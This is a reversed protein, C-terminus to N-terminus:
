WVSIGVYESYVEIAVLKLQSAVSKQLGKLTAVLEKSGFGGVLEEIRAYLFNRAQQILRHSRLRPKISHSPPDEQVYIRFFPEDLEGLTLAYIGADDDVMILDRQIDRALDSGAQGGRARAIDRIVGLLITATALRQQGDLLNICESEPLIVIPGLFYTDPGDKGNFQRYFTFIDDWFTSAHSLEWSYGRQFPPVVVRKATYSPFSTRGLLASINYTQSTFSEQM